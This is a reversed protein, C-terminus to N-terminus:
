SEKKDTQNAALAASGADNIRVRQYCWDGFRQGVLPQDCPYPPRGNVWQASTTPKSCSECDPVEDLLGRRVLAEASKTSFGSQGVYGNMEGGNATITRLTKIQAPTLKVPTAM